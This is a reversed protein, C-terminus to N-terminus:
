IKNDVISVSRCSQSDDPVTSCNPQTIMSSITSSVFYKTVPCALDECTYPNLEFVFTGEGFNSTKAQASNDSPTMAIAPSCDVGFKLNVYLYSNGKARATFEFMYYENNSADRM